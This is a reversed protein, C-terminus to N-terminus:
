RCSISFFYSSIKNSFWIFDNLYVSTQTMGKNSIIVSCNISTFVNQILNNEMKRYKEDNSSFVKVTSNRKFNERMMNMICNEHHSTDFANIETVGIAENLSNLSIGM